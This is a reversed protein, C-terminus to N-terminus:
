DKKSLVEQQANYVWQALLEITEEDHMEYEQAIALWLQYVNFFKRSIFM